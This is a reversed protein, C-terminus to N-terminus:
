LEYSVTKSKGILKSSEAILKYIKTVVIYIQKQNIAL